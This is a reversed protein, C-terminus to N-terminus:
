ESRLAVMPDVAAARRSPVVCAAIIALAVAITVGGLVLPDRATVGFLLDEVVWGSALVLALGVPVGVAALRLGQALVLRVVGAPTAGLALRVGFEPIRQTVTYAMVGYVGALALLLSAGAFVLLLWTRFRHVSSFRDLMAEVTTPHVPVDPNLARIRRELVPALALPDGSATRVVINLATAPGPHQEYPMYIEAQPDADPGLTRVDAVVGVITMFELTDLGTQIRRGLPDEGPFADRAVSESVIAVYEAGMRDRHTFDRGQLLPIGATHFYGPTAVTFIAQPPNGRPVDPGPGGEIWYTGNSRPVTPLSTVGALSQVGPIARLDHLLERYFAVARPGEEWSAVPV